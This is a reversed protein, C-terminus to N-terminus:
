KVGVLEVEFVLTADPPIPGIGRSGYGLDPPVILKRVGGVKMGAVGQDWGKIVRGGGVPFDFTQNRDLSSDFKKGNVLWGTYHVVATSGAEAADGEGVRVDIYQLGTDTTVVPEDSPTGLGRAATVAESEEGAEEATEEQVAAEEPATEVAGVETPEESKQCGVAFVMLAIVGVSWCRRLCPCLM